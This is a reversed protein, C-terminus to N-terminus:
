EKVIINIMDDFDKINQKTVQGEENQHRTLEKRRQPDTTKSIMQAERYPRTHYDTGQRVDLLVNDVLEEYEQLSNNLKENILPEVHRKFLHALELKNEFPLNHAEACAALVPHLGSQDLKGEQIELGDAKMAGHVPTVVGALGQHAIQPVIMANEIADGSGLVERLIAGQEESTNAFLGDLNKLPTKHHINITPRVVEKQQSKSFRTRRVDEPELYFMAQLEPPFDRDDLGLNSVQETFRTDLGKNKLSAPSQEQRAVERDYKRFSDELKQYSM